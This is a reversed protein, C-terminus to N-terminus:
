ALRGLDNELAEALQRASRLLAALIKEDQKSIMRYRSGAPDDGIQDMVLECALILGRLQGADCVSEFLPPLERVTAVQTV